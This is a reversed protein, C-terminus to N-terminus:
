MGLGSAPLEELCEKAGKLDHQAISRVELLPGRDVKAVSPQGDLVRLLEDIACIANEYLAIRARLREEESRSPDDLVGVLAQLEEPLSDQYQM